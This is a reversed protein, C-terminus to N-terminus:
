GVRWEDQYDPHDAYVAALAYLVTEFQWSHGEQCAIDVELGRECARITVRKAQCEALVRAPDWNAIHPNAQPRRSNTLLGSSVGGEYQEIDPGDALWHPHDDIAEHALSEDEAIRAHLFETVTV